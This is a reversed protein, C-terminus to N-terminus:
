TPQNIVNNVINRTIYKETFYRNPVSRIYTMQKWIWSQTTFTSFGVNFAGARLAFAQPSANGWSSAPQQSKSMESRLPLARARLLAGPLMICLPDACPLGVQTGLVEDVRRSRKSSRATQIRQRWCSRRWGTHVRSRTVGRDRATYHRRMLCSRAWKGCRWCLKQASADSSWYKWNKLKEIM